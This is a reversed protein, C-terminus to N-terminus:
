RKLGCRCPSQASGAKTMASRVLVPVKYPLYTVLKPLLVAPRPCPRQTKIQPHRKLDLNVSVPLNTVDAGPPPETM